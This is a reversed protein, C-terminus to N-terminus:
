LFSSGVGYCIDLLVVGMMVFIPCRKQRQQLYLDPVQHHIGVPLRERSYLRFCMDRAKSVLTSVLYQHHSGVPTPTWQPRRQM